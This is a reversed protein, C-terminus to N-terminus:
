RRSPLAPQIGDQSICQHESKPLISQHEFNAAQLVEHYFRRDQEEDNHGLQCYSWNKIDENFKLGDKYIYTKEVLRGEEWQGELKAGSSYYLTGKGHFQGDKMEGEYRMGEMVYSFRCKEGEMRGNKEDGSYKANIFEM